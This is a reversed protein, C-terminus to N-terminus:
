QFLVVAIPLDAWIMTLLLCPVAVPILPSLLIVVAIPPLATIVAVPAPTAVPTTVSEVLLKITPLSATIVACLVSPASAKPISPPAAIVPDALTVTLLRPPLASFLLSSHCILPILFQFLPVVVLILPSVTISTVASILLAM